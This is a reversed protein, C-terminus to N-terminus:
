PEELRAHRRVALAMTLPIALISVVYVWGPVSLGPVFAPAIGAIAVLLGGLIWIMGSDRLQARSSKLVTHAIAALILLGYILMLPYAVSGTSYYLAPHVILEAALFALLGGWAGYIAGAALRSESIRKRIPFVVFFRLMLIYMLVSSAMSVHGQVGNWVGLNPGLGLSAAVGAALGIHALALASSTGLTFFAWLGISLFGLGVLAAQIRNNVAARLPPGYVYNLTVKEGKREVVFRHSQGIRPALSRPWRSEMGIEEVPRGEVSLVRDGAKFGAKDASGGPRVGPVRYEPDYLGGSFGSRLGRYLGFSGWGTLGVAAALLLLRRRRLTLADM